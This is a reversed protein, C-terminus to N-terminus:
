TESLCFLRRSLSLAAFLVLRPTISCISELLPSRSRSLFRKEREFGEERRRRVESWDILRILGAAEHLQEHDLSSEVFLLLFLSLSLSFVSLFSAPKKKESESKREEGM